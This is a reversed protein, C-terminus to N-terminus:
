KVKIQSNQNWKGKSYNTWRKIVANLKKLLETFFPRYFQKNLISVLYNLQSIHLMHYDWRAVNPSLAPNALHRLDYFTRSGTDYLNIMKMLSNLGNIYAKEAKAKYFGISNNDLSTENTALHQAKLACINLFDQLGFLSYVFGNLVFLSNPRTPYEEYWPLDSINMFNARVGQMDVERDFLDLARAASKLYAVDDLHDYMRCMLSIAQGQAMASHWGAANLKLNSSPEFKKMAKILWGGTTQNQTSRLYDATQKAIQFHPTQQSLIANFVKGEGKLSIQYVKYYFSTFLHDATDNNPVLTENLPKLCNECSVRMGKCADICINRVLKLPKAKANSSFPQNLKYVVQFTQDDNVKKTVNEAQKSVDNVREISYVLRIIYNGTILTPDRLIIDFM